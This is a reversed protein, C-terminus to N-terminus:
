KAKRVRERSQLHSYQDISSETLMQLNNKRERMVALILCDLKAPAFEAAQSVSKSMMIPLIVQCSRSIRLGIFCNISTKTKEYAEEM